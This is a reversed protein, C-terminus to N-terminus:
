PMSEAAALRRKAEEYLDSPRPGLELIDLNRGVAAEVANNSISFRSV